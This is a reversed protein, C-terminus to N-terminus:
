QFIVCLFRDSVLVLKWYLNLALTVDVATLFTALDVRSAVERTLALLHAAFPVFWGRTFYLDNVKSTCCIFMFPVGKNDVCSLISCRLYYEFIVSPIFLAIDPGHCTNEYLQVGAFEKKVSILVQLVEGHDLFLTSGYWQSHSLSAAIVLELTLEM